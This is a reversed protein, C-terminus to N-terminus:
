STAIVGATRLSDLLALFEAATPTAGAADAVAVGKKVIGATTTSAAGTKATLAALQTNISPTGNRGPKLPTRLKKAM